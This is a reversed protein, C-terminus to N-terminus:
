DLLTDILSEVGEEGAQEAAAGTVTGLGVAKALSRKRRKIVAFCVSYVALAVVLAIALWIGSIGLEPLMIFGAMVVIIVAAAVLKRWLSM